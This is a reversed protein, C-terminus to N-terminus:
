NNERCCQSRFNALTEANLEPRNGLQMSFCQAKKLLRFAALTRGCAIRFLRFYDKFTHELYFERAYPLGLGVIMNIFLVPILALRNTEEIVCGAKQVRFARFLLVSNSHTNRAIPNKFSAIDILFKTGFRRRELIYFERSDYCSYDQWKELGVRMPFPLLEGNKTVLPADDSLIQFAGTSLSGLFLTSKGGKMLMPFLFNNGDKAFACAHIKYFGLTELKKGLRSLLYLYTVEHLLHLNESYFSAKENEFDAEGLLEGDYNYFRKYRQDSYFCNKSKKWPLNWLQGQYKKLHCEITLFVSPATNETFKFYSFDKSLRELISAEETLIQIFLGYFNFIMTHDYSLVTHFYM